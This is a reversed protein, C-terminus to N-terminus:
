SSQHTFLLTISVMGSDANRVVNILPRVQAALEDDAKTLSDLLALCNPSSALLCSKVVSETMTPDDSTQLLHAVWASLTLAFSRDVVGTQVSGAEPEANVSLLEIMRAVLVDIFGEYQDDM